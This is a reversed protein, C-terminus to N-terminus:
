LMWWRPTIILGVNELDDTQNNTNTPKLHRITNPENVTSDILKDGVNYYTWNSASNAKYYGAVKITFEISVPNGSSDPKVDIDFLPYTGYEPLTTLHYIVSTDKLGSRFLEDNSAKRNWAVNSDWKYYGTDNPLNNGTIFKVYIEKKPHEAIYTRYAADDVLEETLEKDTYYKVNLWAPLENNPYPTGVANLYQRDFDLRDPIVDLKCVTLALKYAQKGDQDGFIICNNDGPETPPDTEPVKYKATWESLHEMENFNDTWRYNSDSLVEFKLGTPQLPNNGVLIPKSNLWAPWKEENAYTPTDEIYYIDFSETGKINTGIQENKVYPDARWDGDKGSDTKKYYGIYKAKIRISSLDKATSADEVTFPASAVVTTVEEGEDDVSTAIIDDYEPLIPNVGNYEVHLYKYTIATNTSPLIGKKSVFAKKDSNWIISDLLVGSNLSKWSAKGFINDKDKWYYGKANTYFNIQIPSYTDSTEHVIDYRVWDPVSDFGIDLKHGDAPYYRVNNTKNASANGLTQGATHYKIKNDKDKVYYYGNVRARMICTDNDDIDLELWDTPYKKGSNNEDVEAAVESFKGVFSYESGVSDLISNFSVFQYKSSKEEVFAQVSKAPYRTQYSAVLLNYSKITIRDESALVLDNKSMYKAQVVDQNQNIKSNYTPLEYEGTQTPSYTEIDYKAVEITNYKAELVPFEKGNLGICTYRDKDNSDYVTQEDSDISIDGLMGGQEVGLKSITVSSTVKGNNNRITLMLVSAIDELPTDINTLTILPLSTFNYTNEIVGVKGDGGNTLTIEVTKNGEKVYRQPKCNFSVSMRLAENYLNTVNGAGSFRAKRYVSDDYDDTLIAYDGNASHLWALIEAANAEYTTNPRFVKAIEYTRTVNKFSKSDVVIDGNRGPVHTVSVDRDPYQYTPISEIIIELEKTSHGNFVFKNM